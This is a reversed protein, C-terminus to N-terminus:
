LSRETIYYGRRGGAGGLARQSLVRAELRLCKKPLQNPSNQREAFSDHQVRECTGSRRECSALSDPVFAHAYLPIALVEIKRDLRYRFQRFQRQLKALMAPGFANCWPLKGSQQIRWSRLRYIIWTQVAFSWPLLQNIVAQLGSAQNAANITFEALARREAGCSM